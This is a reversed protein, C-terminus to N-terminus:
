RLLTGMLNLYRLHDKVLNLCKPVTVKSNWERASRIDHYDIICITILNAIM